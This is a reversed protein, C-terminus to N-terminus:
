VNWCIRMLPKKWPSVDEDENLECESWSDDSFELGVEALKVALSKPKWPAWFIFTTAKANKTCKVKQMWLIQEEARVTTEVLKFFKSKKAAPIESM